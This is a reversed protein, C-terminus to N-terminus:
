GRSATAQVERVGHVNARLEKFTIPDKNHLTLMDGDSTHAVPHRLVSLIHSPLLQLFAKTRLLSTRAAISSFTLGDRNSLFVQVVAHSVAAINDLSPRRSLHRCSRFFSSSCAWLSNAPLLYSDVSRRVRLEARLHPSLATLFVVAGPTSRAALRASM